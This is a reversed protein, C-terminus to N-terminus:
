SRPNDPPSRRQRHSFSAWYQHQRRWQSWATILTAQCPLVFFLRALLRQIEATTLPLLPLCSPTSPEVDTYSNQDQVSTDSMALHSQDQVRIGVLFAYALLVLTIHRYWGKYSRVEYQDLGLKKTAQIDEERHWRNGIAFVMKQLTTGEPAYVLYYTKQSPDDLCRRIVLWHRGDITGQHMHPLIAWDFLRPGKSGQSMALRQWDAPRVLTAEVDRAVALLYNDGRQVCVTEDSSIALGYAYRHQELWRRLEIAQGYVTDAVVWAFPVQAARARQLMHLAIEWKPRFTSQEPIGAERCRERDALWDESLYLDRDILAHGRRTVYSLFVGVQCNEVRGNTGCYQKKVGASKKGRKPFGSEDLVATAGPDAGLHFLV